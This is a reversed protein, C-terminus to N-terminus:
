SARTRRGFGTSHKSIYNHANTETTRGNNSFCRLNLQHNAAPRVSGAWGLRGSVIQRRPAFSRFSNRPRGILPAAALHQPDDPKIQAAARLIIGSSIITIIMPAM